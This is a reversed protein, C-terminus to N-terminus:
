AQEGAVLIWVVLVGVEPLEAADADLTVGDSARLQRTRRFALARGCDELTPEQNRRGPSEILLHWGADEDLAGGATLEQVPLERQCRDGSVAGECTLDSSRM